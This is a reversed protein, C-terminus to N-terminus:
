HGMPPTPPQQNPGEFAQRDAIFSAPLPVQVGCRTCRNEFHMATNYPGGTHSTVIRPKHGALFCDDNSM